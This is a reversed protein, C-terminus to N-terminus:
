FFDWDWLWRQNITKSSGRCTGLVTSSNNRNSGINEVTLQTGSWGGEQLCERMHSGRVDYGMNCDFNCLVGVTAQEKSCKKDGHPPTLLEACLVKIRCIDKLVQSTIGNIANYGGVQFVHNTDPDTAM